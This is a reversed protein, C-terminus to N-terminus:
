EPICQNCEMVLTSLKIRPTVMQDPFVWKELVAQEAIDEGGTFNVEGAATVHQYVQCSKCIIDCRRRWQM